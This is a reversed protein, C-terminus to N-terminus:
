QGRATTILSWCGKVKAKLGKTQHKSCFSGTYVWPEIIQASTGTEQLEDLGHHVQGRFNMWVMTCRALLAWKKCSAVMKMPNKDINTRIRWQIKQRHKFTNVVVIPHRLGNGMDWCWWHGDRDYMQFCLWGVRLSLLM